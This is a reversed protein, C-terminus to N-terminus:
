WANVFEASWDFAASDEYWQPWHRCWQPVTCERVRDLCPYYPKLDIIPTGDEADIFPIHIVGNQSDIRLIAVASVAIPNPRAPSRTAFVGVAAPGLKYPRDCQLIGRCEHSDCLHSWWLVNVHSFGELEQLGPLYKSEIELRFGDKGARVYGIPAISLEKKEM